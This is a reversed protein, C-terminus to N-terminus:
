NCRVPTYPINFCSAITGSTAKGLGLIQGKQDAMWYCEGEMINQEDISVPHGNAYSSLDPEKLEITSVRYVEPLNKFFEQHFEEEGPWFEERLSEQVNMPGIAERTLEILHGCTGLKEAIDEFLTRIYTGTGVEVRFEMSSSDISVLEINHIFRKVPDKVIEVGERAWKYLAKGKHKSASFHPPSQFYEGLFGKLVENVQNQCLGPVEKTLVPKGDCDGTDTKIGFQGKALYIKPYKEHLYDNLRCAGNGGVLLVGEAFPDLTGFHGIKKVEKGLARKVRGVVNQSTIGKPKYLNLVFPCKIM